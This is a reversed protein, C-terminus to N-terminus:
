LRISTLIICEHDIITLYYMSYVFCLTASRHLAHNYDADIIYRILLLYNTSPEFLSKLENNKTLTMQQQSGYFVQHSLYSCNDHDDHM